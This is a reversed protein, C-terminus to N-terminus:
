ATADAHEHSHFYAIAWVIYTYFKKGSRHEDVAKSLNELFRM